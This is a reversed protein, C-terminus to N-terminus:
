ETIDLLQWLESKVLVRSKDTDEMLKDTNGGPHAATFAENYDASMLKSFDSIYNSTVYQYEMGAGSPYVAQWLAWGARSGDKIFQQHVPKWVNNEVDLYSANNEPKVKMFDIQIYKFPAPGSASNVSSVMRVLNSKVLQRSEATEKMIKDVDEGALIKSADIGEYPNELKNPDSVITTTVFNYDDDSGAFRVGYLSWRVIEGKKVREQHIKKWYNRELDTYKQGDGQKVKMFEVLAFVTPNQEQAVVLFPIAMMAFVVVWAIANSKKMFFHKKKM